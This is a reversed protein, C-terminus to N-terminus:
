KSVEDDAEGELTGKVDHMIKECVKILCKDQKKRASKKRKSIEHLCADMTKRQLAIGEYNRKILECISVDKM